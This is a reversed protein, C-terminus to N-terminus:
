AAISLKVVPKGARKKARKKKPKNLVKDVKTIAALYATAQKLSNKVAKLEEANALSVSRTKASLKRVTELEKSVVNLMKRNIANPTKKLRASALKKKKTLIATKKVQRKREALLKKRDKELSSVSAEGDKKANILNEIAIINNKAISASTVLKKTKAM